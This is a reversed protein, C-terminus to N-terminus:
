HLIILKQRFVAQNERKLSAMYVGQSLSATNFQTQRSGPALSHQLVPRGLQDYLTFTLPEGAAESLQLQLSGDAPNPFLRINLQEPAHDSSVEEGRAAKMENLINNGPQAVWNNPPQCLLADDFTTMQDHMKYLARARYVSLGGEMPCQNAINYLSSIQVANLTDIGKGLTRLLIDNVEQENSEFIDAANIAANAAIVNDVTALRSAELSAMLSNLGGITDSLAAAYLLKQNWLSISDIGTTFSIHYNKVAVSDSLRQIEDLHHTYAVLTLSDMGFLSDIQLRVAHLAGMTGSAATNYFSAIATNPQILGPHAHLKAYLYQGSMWRIGEDFADLTYHGGAILTDLDSIAPPPLEDESDCVVGPTCDHEPEPLTADFFIWDPPPPAVNPVSFGPPFFPQMTTHITLQQTIILNADTGFHIAANEQGSGSYTGLWFNAANNQADIMISGEYVLGQCHNGLESDELSTASCAGQFRIAKFTEDTLTCHYDTNQTNSAFLADSQEFTICDRSQGSITNCSLYLHDNGYLGIGVQQPASVEDDRIFIKSDLVDIYNSAVISIGHPSNGEYIYIENSELLAAPQDRQILMQVGVLHIGATAQSAVAADGVEIFNEVVDAKLTHYSNDIQIGYQECDIHNDYVEFSRQTSTTILYGTNVDVIKNNTSTVNVDSAFVATHCTAFTPPDGNGAIPVQPSGTNGLGAQVLRQGDGIAHIGFRSLAYANDPVMNIFTARQVNMNAKSAVIGNALDYFEEAPTDITNPDNTPLGVFLEDSQYSDVLIGAYSWEGDPIADYPELLLGNSHHQNGHISHQFASQKVYISVYNNFFNNGEIIATCGAEPIIAHQAGEVNNYLFQLTAQNLINIHRWMQQLSDCPLFDNLILGINTEVNITISAGPAMLFDNDWFSYGNIDMLFNGCVGIAEGWQSGPDLIGANVASSLTPYDTEDGVHINADPCCECKVTVPRDCSFGLSSSLTVIYTESVDYTHCPNFETSTTGDGFDWFQNLLGAIFCVTCDDVHYTFNIGESCYDVCTVNIEASCSQQTGNTLTITLTVTYTVPFIYEYTPCNVNSTSGDGFDWTYETVDNPDVTPTFNVLGCNQTYTFLQQCNNNIYKSEATATNSILLVTFLLHLLNRFDFSAYKCFLDTATKEM